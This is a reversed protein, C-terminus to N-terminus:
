AVPETPPPESPPAAPTGAAVAAALASGSADLDARLTGLTADVTAKEVGAALLDAEAQALRASFGQILKAASNMVDVDEAVETVLSSLNEMLLEGQKKMLDITQKALAIRRLLLPHTTQIAALKAILEAESITVGPQTM